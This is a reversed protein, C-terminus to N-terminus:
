KKLNQRSFVGERECVCLLCIGERVGLGSDMDEEEGFGGQNEWVRVSKREGAEAVTGSGAKNHCNYM